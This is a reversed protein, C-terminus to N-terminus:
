TGGGVKSGDVGYKSDSKSKTPMRAKQVRLRQAACGRCALVIESLPALEGDSGRPQVRFKGERSCGPAACTHTRSGDGRSITFSKATTKLPDSM